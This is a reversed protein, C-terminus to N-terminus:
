EHAEINMQAYEEAMRKEYEAKAAIEEATAKRFRGDHVGVGIAEKFFVREEIPLEANQTYVVGTNKIQEM